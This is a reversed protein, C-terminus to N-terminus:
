ISIDGVHSGLYEWCIVQTVHNHLLEWLLLIYKMLQIM